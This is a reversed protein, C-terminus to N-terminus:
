ITGQRGYGEKRKVGYRECNEGEERRGRESMDDGDGVGLKVRSAGVAALTRRTTTSDIWSASSPPSFPYPELELVAAVALGLGPPWFAFTFCPEARAPFLERLETHAFKLSAQPPSPLM